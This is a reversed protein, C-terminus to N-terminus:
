IKQKERERAVRRRTKPLTFFHFPYMRTYRCGTPVFKFSQVVMPWGDLRSKRINKKSCGLWRSGVGLWFEEELWVSMWLTWTEAGDSFGSSRCTEQFMQEWGERTEHWIASYYTPQNDTHSDGRCAQDRPETVVVFNNPPGLTTTTWTTGLTTTGLTTTWTGRQSQFLVASFLSFLLPIASTVIWYGWHQELVGRMIM